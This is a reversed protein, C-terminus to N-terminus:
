IHEDSLINGLLCNYKIEKEERITKLLEIHYFIFIKDIVTRMWNQIEPTKEFINM